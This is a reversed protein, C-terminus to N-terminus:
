FDEAGYYWRDRPAFHDADRAAGNRWFVDIDNASAKRQEKEGLRSAALSAPPFVHTAM